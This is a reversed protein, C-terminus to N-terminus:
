RHAYGARGRAIRTGSYARATVAPHTPSVSHVGGVVCALRTVPAVPPKIQNNPTSRVRGCM